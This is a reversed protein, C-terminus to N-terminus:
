LGLQQLLTDRLGDSFKLDNNTYLPAIANQFEAVDVETVAGKEGVKVKYNDLLGQEESAVIDSYKAAIEQITTTFLEKQEDSMSDILKKGAIFSSQLMYHKTIALYPFVEYFAASDAYAAQIEAGDLSKAQGAPYIDGAGMSTQAFGLYKALNNGIDNGFGRIRLGKLDALKEVKTTTYFNRFGNFMDAIFSIGQAELKAQWEAYLATDPLRSLVTYDTLVYPSMLINLDAIGFQSALRGPDSPVVLPVGDVAQKVLNDTDNSLAGAVQLQADFLGSANLTDAMEKMARSQGTAAGETGAFIVTIKTSGGDKKTCGVVLTVAALAALATLAIKKM